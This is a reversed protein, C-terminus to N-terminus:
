AFTFSTSRHALVLGTAGLVKDTVGYTGCCSYAVYRTKVVSHGPALAIKWVRSNPGTRAFPGSMTQSLTVIEYRGACSTVTSRITEYPANQANIPPTARLQLTACQGTAAPGTAAGATRGTALPVTIAALAATVALLVVFGRSHPPRLLPRAM